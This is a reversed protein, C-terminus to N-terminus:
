KPFPHVVASNLHKELLSVWSDPVVVVHGGKKELSFAPASTVTDWPLGLVHVMLVLGSVVLM